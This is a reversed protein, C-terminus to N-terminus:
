NIMQAIKTTDKLRTIQCFFKKTTRQTFHRRALPFAFVCVTTHAASPSQVGGLPPSFGCPLPLGRAASICDAVALVRAALMAASRLLCVGLPPLIGCPRANGAFRLRLFCLSSFSYHRTSMKRRYPRRLSPRLALLTSRLLLLSWSPAGAFRPLPSCIEAFFLNESITSKKKKRAYKPAIEFFKAIKQSILLLCVSARHSAPCGLGGCRPPQRATANDATSHSRTRRAGWRRLTGCPHALVVIYLAGAVYALPDACQAARRRLRRLLRYCIIDCVIPTRSDFTISQTCKKMGYTYQNNRNNCYGNAVCIFSCPNINVRAGEFNNIKTALGM